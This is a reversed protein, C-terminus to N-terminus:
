RACSYDTRRLRPLSRNAAFIRIKRLLLRYQFNFRGVRYLSPRPTTVTKLVATYKDGGKRKTGDIGQCVVSKIYLVFLM